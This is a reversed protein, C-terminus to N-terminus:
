KLADAPVRLAARAKEGDRVDVEGIPVRADRLRELLQHRPGPQAADRREPVLLLVLWHGPAVNATLNGDGDTSGVPPRFDDHPDRVLFVSGNRVPGGAPDVMSLELTSESVVFSHEVTAGARVEVDFGEPYYLANMLAYRGARLRGRFSGDADTTFSAGAADGQRQLTVSKGSEPRGHKQVTGTLTGTAWASVDVAIEGDAGAPLSVPAGGSAWAGGAWTSLQGELQLDWTGPPVGATQVTGSPDLPWGKTFWVPWYEIDSGRRRFLRVSAKPAEALCEAVVTAPFLRLTAHAGPEVHVVLPSADTLDVSPVVAPAHKTGIVRLALPDGLSTSLVAEGRADTTAEQMVPLWWPEDPEFSGNLESTATLLESRQVVLQVTSGACVEGREDIVRAVRQALAPIHVTREIPTGDVVDLPEFVPKGDTQAHLRAARRIAIWSHGRGVTGVWADARRELMSTKWAPDRLEVAAVELAKGAADVVHVTLPAQRLMVLRVDKSGWARWTHHEVPEFGLCEWTVEATGAVARFPRALDFRGAAASRAESAPSFGVVCCVTAEAVPQGTEDVVIGQIGPGKAGALVVVVLEESAAHTALDVRLPGHALLRPQATLEVPLAATRLRFRGEHDTSASSRMRPHSKLWPQWREDNSGVEVEVDAQPDGDTDVVRGRLDVIPLKLVGAPVQADVPEREAAEPESPAAGHAPRAAAHGPDVSRGRPWASVAFAIGAGLALLVAGAM